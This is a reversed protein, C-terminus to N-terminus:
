PGNNAHRDAQQVIHFGAAIKQLLIEMATAIKSLFLLSHLRNMDLAMQRESNEHQWLTLTEM